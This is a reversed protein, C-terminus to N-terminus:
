GYVYLQKEHTVTCEFVDGAQPIYEEDAVKTKNGAAMTGVKKKKEEDGGEETDAAQKGKRGVEETGLTQKKTSGVEKSDLKHKGKHGVEETDLKQKKTNGVEESDRERKKDNKDKKDKKDMKDKKEKKEKKDHEKHGEQDQTEKNDKQDMDTKEKGQAHGQASGSGQAHGQPSGSGQAEKNDQQAVDTTEKGEAEKNEQQALHTTEKDQMEKNGKQDTKERDQVEKSETHDTKMPEFTALAALWPFAESPEAQKLLKKLAAVWVKQLRVWLRAIKPTAAVLLPPRQPVDQGQGHEEAAAPALGQTHSEAAPWGLKFAIFEKVLFPLAELQQLDQTVALDHLLGALYPNVINTRDKDPIDLLCNVFTAIREINGQPPSTKQVCPLVELWPEACEHLPWEQILDLTEKNKLCYVVKAKASFESAFLVRGLALDASSDERLLENIERARHAPTMTAKKVKDVMRQRELTCYDHYLKSTLFTTKQALTLQAQKLEQQFDAVTCKEDMKRSLLLVAKLIPLMLPPAIKELEELPERFHSLAHLCGSECLVKSIFRPFNKVPTPLAKVFDEHEPKGKFREKEQSLYDNFQAVWFRM